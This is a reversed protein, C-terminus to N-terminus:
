KKKKIAKDYMWEMKMEVGSRIVNLLSEYYLFHRNNIDLFSQAM